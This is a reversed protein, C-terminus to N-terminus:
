VEGCRRENRSRMSTPSCGDRLGVEGRRDRARRLRRLEHVAGRLGVVVHRLELGEGRRRVVLQRPAPHLDGHDLGAEAAAEVGRVHDGRLHLHQGRHAELVRAPQARRELVDRALLEGHHVVVAVSTTPRSAGLDARDGLAHGRAGRAAADRARAAGLQRQARAPPKWRPLKASAAAAASANRPRGSSSRANLPPRRSRRGRGARPPRALPRQREEVAGVVRRARMREGGRQRSTSPARRGRTATIPTSSSLSAAPISSVSSGCSSRTTNVRGALGRESEGAVSTVSASFSPPGGASVTGSGRAASARARSSPRAPRRPARSPSSRGSRPGRARPRPRAPTSATTRRDGRDQEVEVAHEHLRALGRLPDPQVPSSSRCRRPHTATRWAHPATRRRRAPAAAPDRGRRRLRLLDLPALGLVHLTQASDGPAPPASRANFASRTATTVEPVRGSARARSAATPM